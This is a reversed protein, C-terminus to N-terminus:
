RGWDKKQQQKLFKTVNKEVEDYDTGVAKLMCLLFCEGWINKPVRFSRMLRKVLSTTTENDM